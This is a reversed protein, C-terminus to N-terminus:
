RVMGGRLASTVHDIVRSADADNNLKVFYEWAVLGDREIHVDGREPAAPNTVLIKDFHKGKIGNVPYTALRCDLGRSQLTEALFRLRRDMSDSPGTEPEGTPPVCGDPIGLVCYVTKGGSPLLFFSWEKSLAQVLVFGRGSESDIDPSALVPPSSDSDSVEIILQGPMYRLTVDIIEVSATASTLLTEPAPNAFKCANTVLESVLLETTEITEVQIQWKGLVDCAHRRAWFPASPMAALQISAVLENDLVLRPLGL